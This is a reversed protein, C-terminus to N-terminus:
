LPIEEDDRQRRLDVLEASINQMQLEYKAVQAHAEGLMTRISEERNELFVIRRRLDDGTLTATLM